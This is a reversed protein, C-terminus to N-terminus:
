EYSYKSGMKIIGSVRSEPVGFISSEVIIAKIEGRGLARMKVIYLVNIKNVFM